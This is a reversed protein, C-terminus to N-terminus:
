DEPKFVSQLALRAELRKKEENVMVLFLALRKAHSQTQVLEQVPVTQAHVLPEVEEQFQTQLAVVERQLSEPLESLSVQPPVDGREKKLFELIRERIDSQFQQQRQQARQMLYGQWIHVLSWFGTGRTANRQRLAEDSFRVEAETRAQLSAVELVAALVRDELEASDENTDTDALDECEVRLYTSRDAFARPNLVRKLRVRGIVKHSCVYKVQDNTQESVERLDALYFVVGVEALRVGGTEDQTVHPVVFRRGGSLLIDSYMQRYRPEFINLVQETDPVYATSGLPFCPLTLAGETPALENELSYDLSPLYRM